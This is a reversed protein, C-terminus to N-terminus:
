RGWSRHRSGMGYLLNDLHVYKGQKFEAWGRRIARKETTTAEVVPVRALYVRLAERIIESPTRHELKRVREVHRVLQPPLSVTLTQDHKM